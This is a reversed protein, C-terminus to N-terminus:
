VGEEIAFRLDQKIDMTNNLFDNIKKVEIDLKASNLKKTNGQTTEFVVVGFKDKNPNDENKVYLYKISIKETPMNRAVDVKVKKAFERNNWAEFIVENKDKIAIRGFKKYSENNSYRAISFFRDATHTYVTIRYRHDLKLEQFVEFLKDELPKSIQYKFNSILSKLFSNEEETTSLENSLKDLENKLNEKKAENLIKKGVLLISVVFMIVIATTPYEKIIDISDLKGEVLLTFLIAVIPILLDITKSYSKQYLKKMM